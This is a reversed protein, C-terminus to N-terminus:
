SDPAAQVPLDQKILRGIAGVALTLLLLYFFSNKPLAHLVQEPLYQAIQDGYMLYIAIEAKAALFAQMSLWKPAQKWGQVLAIVGMLKEDDNKVSTTM